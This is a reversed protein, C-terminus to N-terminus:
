EEETAQIPGRLPIQANPSLGTNLDAAITDWTPNYIVKGVASLDFGQKMYTGIVGPEQKKPDFMIPVMGQELRIAVDVFNYTKKLGEMDQVANGKSDQVIISVQEGKANLMERRRDDLHHTLVVHKEVHADGTVELQNQARTYIARVMDNPKAYEIQILQQRNSTQQLEELYADAAVRRAITATDIGVLKINNDLLAANFLGTFINWLERVGSLKAGAIQAPEPLLYVTIARGNNRIWKKRTATMDMVDMTPPYQVVEIDINQFLRWMKGNLARNVGADFSCVVIPLPGSYLITSKSSAQNGELSLFM